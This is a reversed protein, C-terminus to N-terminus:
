TYFHQHIYIIAGDTEICKRGPDYSDKILFKHLIYLFIYIILDIDM